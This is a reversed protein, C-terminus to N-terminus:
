AIGPQGRSSRRSKAINSNSDQLDGSVTERILLRIRGEDDQEQQVSDIRGSTQNIISIQPIGNNKGGNDGMIQRMQEATRVRSAGGPMIVEMKGREAVTSVQGYALHGGQERASTFSLASALGVTSSIGASAPAANAGFSALSAMAAAPAYAAAIATGTTAASAVAAANATNGIILNKIYQAGMEVLGNVASDIIANGLNAFAQKATTTGKIIGALSSSASSTLSDFSDLLLNNFGSQKRFREEMVSEMNKEYDADLSQRAQISVEHNANELEDYQQILKLRNERDRQLKAVPDISNIIDNRAQEATQMIATKAEEYQQQRALSQDNDKAQFDALTKLKQKETATIRQLENGSTRDIQALFTDSAKKQVEAAKADRKDQAAARKDAAANIRDTKKQEREDIKAIETEYQKDAAANARTREDATLGERESIQAKLLDRELKAQEKGRAGRVELSRIYLDNAAANKKTTDDVVTSLEKQVNANDVVSQNAVQVAGNLEVFGSTQKGLPKALGDLAKGLAAINDGSANQQVAALLPVLTKAQDKTIGLKKATNDLYGNLSDMAAGTKLSNEAGIANGYWLTDGAKAAAQAAQQMGKMQKASADSATAIKSQVVAANAGSLILQKLANSAEYAGNATRTLVDQLSKQADALDKTSVEADSMSKYLAGGVASALAIVAGLVAGGPGFAGALQSGQQGIAVFASTGGQLQVVLDQVQYGAQGAINRFKNLGNSATGESEKGFNSIQETLSAIKAKQDDTAGSGAKIQNALTAAATAGGQQAAQLLKLNNELSSVVSAAKQRANNADAEQKAADAAAQAAKTEAEAIDYMKATLQGVVDIEAKTADAGLKLQAALVAAAKAGNQQAEEIIALKNGLQEAASSYGSLSPSVKKASTALSTSAKDASSASDAFNDLQKAAQEAGDTKVRAVLSATDAM